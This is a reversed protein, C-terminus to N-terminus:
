SSVKCQGADAAADLEAATAQSDAAGQPQALAEELSTFCSMFQDLGTLTLIRRVVGDAPIVLRLEDGKAMVRKHARVLTHLGASDCFVTGTM